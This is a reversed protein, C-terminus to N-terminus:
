MTTNVTGSRTSISYLSCRAPRRAHMRVILNIDFLEGHRVFFEVIKNHFNFM